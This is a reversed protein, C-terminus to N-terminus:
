ASGGLSIAEWVGPNGSEICRWGLPSGAAPESNFIFSGAVSPGQTPPSSGSAVGPVPEAYPLFARIATMSKTYIRVQQLISETTRTTMYVAVYRVDQRFKAFTPLYSFSARAAGGFSTYAVFNAGARGRIAGTEPSSIQNMESDFLVFVPSGDGAVKCVSEVIISTGYETEPLELFIGFARNPYSIGEDGITVRTTSAAGLPSSAQGLVGAVMGLVQVRNGSVPRAKSRIDGSDWVLKTHTEYPRMRPSGVIVSTPTEALSDDIKGETDIAGYGFSLENEGALQGEKLFTPSNSEDRVLVFRCQRMHEGDVVHSVGDAGHGLQEFSTSYWTNNNHNSNSVAGRKARVGICTRGSVSSSEKTLRGGHWTNENCWGNNDSSVVHQVKNNILYGLWIHSYAFGTGDGICVLGLEFRQVSHIFSGISTNYNYLVIGIDTEEGDPKPSSAWEASPRAVKFSSRAFWTVVGPKGHIVAPRDTPGEFILTDRMDVDVTPAIRITDSVTYTGTPSNDFVVVPRGLRTASGAGIAMREAFDLAKQIAATDDGVGKAGFARVDLRGVPTFSGTLTEYSFAAGQVLYRKDSGLMAAPLASLTDMDPVAVVGRAVMAAGKDPNALDNRLVTDGNDYLYRTRDVLPKITNNLVDFRAPDTAEFARVGETFVSDEEFDAM